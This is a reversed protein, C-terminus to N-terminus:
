RLLADASSAYVLNAPDMDSLYILVEGDKIDAPFEVGSSVAGAASVYSNFYDSVKGGDAFLNSNTMDETNIDNAASEVTSMISTLASFDTAASPSAYYEEMYAKVADDGSFAAMAATVQSLNSANEFAENMADYKEKAVAANESTSALPSSMAATFMAYDAILGAAMTGDDTGNAAANYNQAAAFVMMNSLQTQFEESDEVVFGDGTSNLPIGFQNCMAQFNANKEEDTAGTAFNAVMDGYLDEPETNLKGTVFNFLNGTMTSVQSITESVGATVFSSNKIAEAEAATMNSVANFTASTTWGSWSLKVVNKWDSGFAATMAADGFADANIESGDASLLVWGGNGADPNSYYHLELAHAVESILTRDAQKNAKEIYASYGAVAVSSLIALIAIVIILEVLTFGEHNHVDMSWFRKMKEKLKM